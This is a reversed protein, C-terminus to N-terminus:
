LTNGEHLERKANVYAAHAEEPTCFTGIRIHQDPTKIQAVYRQKDRRVGLYGTTNTSQPSRRNQLNITRSVDRLNIIRNDSRHGNIHDIDGDPWHGFHILWAIRHAMLKCGDIKVMIYGDANKYRCEDGAKVPGRRNVRWRLTGSKEDYGLLETVRERTPLNSRSM